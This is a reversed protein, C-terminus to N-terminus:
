SPWVLGIGAPDQGGTIVESRTGNSIQAWAESVRLDPNLVDDVAILGGPRVLPGYLMFDRIVGEPSHDGDIFLFDVTRDGLLRLLSENTRLDHSDALLIEAGHSKLTYLGQPYKGEGPPSVPLTIGIVRTCVQRWAWLTGGADCGIEVVIALPNLGIVKELLAALEDPQQIAHHEAAATGALEATNM